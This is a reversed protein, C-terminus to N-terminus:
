LLPLQDGAKTPRRFTTALDKPRREERWLGLRRAHTEFLKGIANAYQGEGSHRLSFRTASSRGGHVERTRELIRSAALPMAERIRQEFVPRVSGNLRLLIYSASKVGAARAAELLPVIDAEALAPILPGMLVSVPIGAAVLREAAKMRRAPAATYPELARSKEANWIPLSISVHVRAEAALRSLVDIDREILASKTIIGVPNRYEACVELCGRTLRYHAEIAQYCDTVGSFVLTDGKWSKREFTERLLRPAEPKIV